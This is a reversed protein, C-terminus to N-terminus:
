GGTDNNGEVGGRGIRRLIFKPEVLFAKLPMVVVWVVEVVSLMARLSM